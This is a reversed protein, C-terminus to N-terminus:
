IVQNSPEKTSRTKPIELGLPAVQEKNTAASKTKRLPSDNELENLQVASMPENQQSASEPDGKSSSKSSPKDGEVPGYFSLIVPLFFFGNSMGFVIIGVWLKFFVVFVYSSSFGLASIALLTSFGGHFVSSGMKRLAMKAKYIRIKEPTNHIGNQPVKEVLFAYAIHASYDVSIGVSVVIHVLLIPNLTLRWYHIFGFLLVDTIFVCLGVLLTITINSTMAMIIILIIIISLSVCLTMERHFTGWMEYDLFQVAYSFSGEFGFEEELQRLENM